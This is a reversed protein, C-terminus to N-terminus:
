VVFLGAVGVSGLALTQHAWCLALGLTTPTGFMTSSQQISDLMAWAVRYPVVKMMPRHIM